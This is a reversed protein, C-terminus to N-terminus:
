ATGPQTAGELADGILSREAASGPDPRLYLSVGEPSAAQLARV